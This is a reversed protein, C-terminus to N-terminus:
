LNKRIRSLSEPTVNLYSALYKLPINRVFEPSQKLLKLYRETASLSILDRSREAVRKFVEETFIRGLQDFKPSLGYLKQLDAHSMSLLTLPTLAEIYHDSPTRDLFSEYSSILSGSFYFDFSIEREEKYFFSRTVGEVIFNIYHEVEGEAILLANKGLSRLRVYRSLLELEEEGIAARDHLTKRLSEIGELFLSM